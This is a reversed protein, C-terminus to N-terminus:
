GVHKPDFADQLADSVVNFATVLVLMFMTAAGIQWFMGNVVEPAADSIMRGWSAGDKLGLGLFTLIVETKVAGIFLLSFNIFMLHSTNPIVHRLLIYGRGFGIARGAQVYELEKVKLVEGRIVRCPGIWFTLCLAVYIPVLTSELPTGLFMFALVALLVLQPLSSLTSYLWTVAHDVWGGFYAAAAGLAAGILVSALAVVFGVQIATKASYIGRLLISRGSNDTGLALRVSYLTGAAGTPMPMLREVAAEIAAVKDAQEAGGVGAAAREGDARLAKLAGEVAEAAARLGEPKGARAADALDQWRDIDAQATGLGTLKEGSGQAKAVDELAFMVDEVASAAKEAAAKAGGADAGAAAKLAEAATAAADRAKEVTV